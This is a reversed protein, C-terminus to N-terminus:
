VGMGEGPGAAFPKPGGSTVTPSATRAVTNPHAGAPHGEPGLGAETAGQLRRIGAMAGPSLEGGAMMQMLEEPPVMEQEEELIDTYSLIEQALAQKFEPSQEIDEIMREEILQQPNERKLITEYVDRLPLRLPDEVALRAAGIDSNRDMINSIKAEADICHIQGKVDKPGLSITEYGKGKEKESGLRIYVRQNIIPSQIARCPAQGLLRKAGLAINDAVPALDRETYQGRLRWTWAATNSAGRAIDYGVDPLLREKADDLKAWLSDAGPEDPPWGQMKLEEDNYLYLANPPAIEIDPREESGDAPRDEKSNIVPFPLPFLETIMAKRTLQADMALGVDKVDFLVPEWRKFPDSSATTLGEVLVWPCMGMGHKYPTKIFGKIEKYEVATAVWEEDVYEWVQVDETLKVGEQNAYDEFEDPWRRAADALSIKVKRVAKLVRYRETIVAYVTEAALHRMSIPPLQDQKWASLRKQFEGRTEKESVKKGTAADIGEGREPYDPAENWRGRYPLVEGWGRGLKFVDELIEPWFTGYEAELAWPLTNLFGELRESLKHSARGIGPKHSLVPKDTFLAKMAKIGKRTWGSRIKKPTWNKIGKPEPARVDYTMEWLDIMESDRARLASWDDYITQYLKKIQSFEPKPLGTKTTM